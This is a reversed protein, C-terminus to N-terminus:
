VSKYVCEGWLRWINMKWASKGALPLVMEIFIRLVVGLRFSKQKSECFVRLISRMFVSCFVCCDYRKFTIYECFLVSEWESSIGCEVMRLIESWCIAISGRQHSFWTVIDLQQNNIQLRIAVGGGPGDERRTITTMVCRTIHASRVSHSLPSIFPIM